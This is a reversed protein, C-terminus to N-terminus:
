GEYVAMAKELVSQRIRRNLFKETVLDVPRGDFLASLEDQMDILALGPTHGREFEVLVDVDSDARFDGGLVSGFLAMRRVHNRRCFESLASQPIDVGFTVM